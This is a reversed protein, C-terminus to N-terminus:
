KASSPRRASASSPRGSRFGIGLSFRNAKPGVLTFTQSSGEAFSSASRAAQQQGRQLQDRHKEVMVKTRVGQWYDTRSVPRPRNWGSGINKPNYNKLHRYSSGPATASFTENGDSSGGSAAATGESEPHVQDCVSSFNFDFHIRGKTRSFPPVPHGEGAGSSSSPPPRASSCRGGNPRLDPDQFPKTSFKPVRHQSGSDNNGGGGEGVVRPSTVECPSPSSAVGKDKKLTSAKLPKRKSAGLSPNEATLVQLEKQANELRERAEDIQDLLDELQGSPPSPGPGTSGGLSNASSSGKGIIPNRKLHAVM